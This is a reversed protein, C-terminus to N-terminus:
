RTVRVKSGAITVIIWVPLWFGCTCVTLIFHLAHNPGKVEMTVPPQPAPQHHATWQQGDFYRQGPGQPDPYWGPAPATM